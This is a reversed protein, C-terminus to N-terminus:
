RARLGLNGEHLRLRLSNQYYAVTQYQGIVIPLEILQQANLYKELVKWTADSIMSDQRLEDIATLLTRERENWGPADPGKIIREVDDQDLGAKRAIIVHEGWQYPAQCLWGMRLICLERDRAELSGQALLQIGLDVQRAFLDPHRLMTRVIEPIKALLGSMTEAPIKQDEGAPLLDGLLEPERADVAQNVRIMRLVIEILKDDLEEVQLPAIRPESGLVRAEGPTLNQRTLSSDQSM